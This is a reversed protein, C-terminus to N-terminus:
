GEILVSFRPTSICNSILSVFPHSFGLSEVGRWHVYDFIKQLILSLALEKPHSEILVGNTTDETLSINNSILRGQVFACQNKFVLSPMVIAIRSALM